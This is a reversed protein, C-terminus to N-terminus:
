LVAYRLRGIILMEEGDGGGGWFFFFFCSTNTFCSYGWLPWKKFITIKINLRSRSQHGQDEYCCFPRKVLYVRHFIFARVRVLLFIHGIYFNKCVFLCVLLCVSPHIFLCVSWFSYAGLRDSHPCLFYQWFCSCCVVQINDWLMHISVLTVM